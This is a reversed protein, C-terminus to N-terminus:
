SVKSLDEERYVFVSAAGRPGGVSMFVINYLYGGQYEPFTKKYVEEYNKGYEDSTHFVGAVQGWGRKDYDNDTYLFEGVKFKPLHLSATPNNVGLGVTGDTWCGRFEDYVLNVPGTKWKSAVAKKTAWATPILAAFMAGIMTRRKM